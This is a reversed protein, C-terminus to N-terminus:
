YHTIRSMYPNGPCASVGAGSWHGYVDETYPRRPPEIYVSSTGHGVTSYSSPNNTYPLSEKLPTLESTTGVACKDIICGAIVSAVVGIVFLVVTVGTEPNEGSSYIFGGLLCGFGLCVLPIAIMCGCCRECESPMREEFKELDFILM